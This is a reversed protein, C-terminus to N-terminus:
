SNVDKDALIAKEKNLIKGFIECCNEQGIEPVETYM